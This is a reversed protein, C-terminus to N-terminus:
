VHERLFAYIGPWYYRTQATAYLRDFGLHCNNDHLKKAVQARLATSVCLQKVVATARRLNKTRPTYLHYLQEDLVVYDAAEVVIRRAAQDDPLLEGEDSLAV